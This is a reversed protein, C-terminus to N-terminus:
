QLRDVLLSLVDNPASQTLAGSSLYDAGTDAYARVNELTIGGSIEVICDPRIKRVIEVCARAQDPSMHDLLVAEAGASLAERLESEGRVEIEIPLSTAEEESPIPGVAEYASMALPKMQASVYSHAQDLAAKVGGAFAIHNEKLLVGGFLDVPRNAGGGIKFAYRELMRMGPATKWTDCMKAQTGAILEV